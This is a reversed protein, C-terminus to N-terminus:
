YCLLSDFCRLTVSVLTYVGGGSIIFKLKKLKELATEDKSLEDLVGPPVHVSDVQTKELAELLLEANPKRDKPLFQIASGLYFAHRTLLLTLM